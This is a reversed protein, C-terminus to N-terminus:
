LANVSNMAKRPIEINKELLMKIVQKKTGKYQIDSKKCLDRLENMTYSDEIWRVEDDNLREKEDTEMESKNSNSNNNSNTDSDSNSEKDENIINELNEDLVTNDEHKKIMELIMESIGDEDEETDITDKLIKDIDDIDKELSAVQDHLEEDMTTKTSNNMSESKKNQEKKMEPNKHYESVLLWELDSLRLRLEKNVNSQKIYLISIVVCLLLILTALIILVLNLNNPLLM